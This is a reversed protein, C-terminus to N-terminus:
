RAAPTGSSASVTDSFTVSTGYSSPNPSCTLVSTTGLANVVQTVVNSTSGAYNGSAGYIAEVYTTGM